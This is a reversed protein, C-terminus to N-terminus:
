HVWVHLPNSREPVDDHGRPRTRCWKEESTDRRHPAGSDFGSTATATATLRWSTSMFMTMGRRAELLDNENLENRNESLPHWRELMKTPHIWSRLRQQQATMRRADSVLHLLSSRCISMLSYMRLIIQKQSSGRFDAAILHEVERRHLSAEFLIGPDLDRGTRAPM